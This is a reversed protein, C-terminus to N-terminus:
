ELATIQLSVMLWSNNRELLLIMDVSNRPQCVFVESRPAEIQCNGVSEVNEHQFILNLVWTLAQEPEGESAINNHILDLFMASLELTIKM